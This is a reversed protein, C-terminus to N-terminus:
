LGVLDNYSSAGTARRRSSAESRQGRDTYVGVMRYSGTLRVGDSMLGGPRVFERYPPITPVVHRL